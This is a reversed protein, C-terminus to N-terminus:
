AYKSGVGKAPHFMMTSGDVVSKDFAVEIVMCNEPEIIWSAHRVAAACAPTSARDRQQCCNRPARPSVIRRLGAGVGRRGRDELSKRHPFRASRIRGEGGHSERAREPLRGVAERLSPAKLARTLFTLEVM